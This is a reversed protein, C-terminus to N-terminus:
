PKAEKNVRGLADQGAIDTPNSKVFKQLAALAENFRGMKEYALGLGYYAQTMDPARQTVQELQAAAESAQGQTLAVMAQAWAAEQTKGLANYSVVLGQYPQPYSPDFRLAEQFEKVANAHNQQMQYVMGLTYLADADTEDIKLAKQLADTAQPYNKQEYYIKGVEYYVAELTEDLGALPADKTLEIARNYYQIASTLDGKQNNARALVLLAGPYDPHIKLGENAQEIASDLLGSQLYFNAAQVRMEANQPNKKIMEEIQQAQRELVTQDPHVYRDYYYYVGFGVLSLIVVASLIWIPWDFHRNANPPLKQM